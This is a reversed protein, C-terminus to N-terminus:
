DDDDSDGNLRQELTLVDRFYQLSLELATEAKQLVHDYRRRSADLADLADLRESYLYVRERLARYQFRFERAQAATPPRHPDLQELLERCRGLRARSEDAALAARAISNANSHAIIKSTYRM